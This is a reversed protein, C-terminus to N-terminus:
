IIKKLSDNSNISNISSNKKFLTQFNVSTTLLTKKILPNINQNNYYKINFINISNNINNRNNQLDTQLVEKKNNILKKNTYINKIIIEKNNNINNNENKNLM